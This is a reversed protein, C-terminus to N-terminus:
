VSLLKVFPLLFSSQRELWLPFAQFMIRVRTSRRGVTNRRTRQLMQTRRLMRIKSIFVTRQIVKTTANTRQLMGWQMSAHSLQMLLSIYAIFSWHCAHHHCLNAILLLQTVHCCQWQQLTGLKHLSTQNVHFCMLFNGFCQTKKRTNVEVNACKSVNNFFDFM